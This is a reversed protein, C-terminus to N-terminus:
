HYYVKNNDITTALRATVKRFARPTAKEYAFKPQAEDHDIHLEAIKCASKSIMETSMGTTVPSDAEIDQFFRPQFAKFRVHLKSGEKCMNESCDTCYKVANTTRKGGKQCPECETGIIDTLVHRQFAKFLTHSTSCKSCLYELCDTCYKTADTTNGEKQCHECDKVEDSGGLVSRPQYEDSANLVSGSYKASKAM